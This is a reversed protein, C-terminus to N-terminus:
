LGIVVSNSVMSEMTMQAQSNGSVSEDGTNRSNLHSKANASELAKNSSSGNAQDFLLSNARVPSQNFSHENPHSSHSATSELSPALLATWSNIGPITGIGRFALCFSQVNPGVYFVVFSTFQQGMVRQERQKRFAHLFEGYEKELLKDVLVADKPPPLPNPTHRIICYPNQLLPTFWDAGFESPLLFVGESFEKRAFKTFIIYLMRELGGNYGCVSESLLLSDLQASQLHAQALQSATSVPLVGSLNAWVCGNWEVNEVMQFQGPTDLIMDFQRNGIVARAQQFITTESVTRVQQPIVRHSPPPPPPLGVSPSKSIDRTALDDSTSVARRRSRSSLASPNAVRKRKRPLSKLDRDNLYQELFSTTICGDPALSCVDKWVEVWHEEPIKSLHQCHSQYMPPRLDESRHANITDYVRYSVIYEYCTSKSFQLHEKAWRLFEKQSHFVGDEYYLKFLIRGVVVFTALGTQSEIAEKYDELREDGIGDVCAVASILALLEGGHMVDDEEHEGNSRNVRLGSKNGSSQKYRSCRYGEDNHERALMSIEVAGVLLRRELILTEM